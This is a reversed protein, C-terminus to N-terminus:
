NRQNTFRLHYNIVLKPIYIIRNANISFTHQPPLNFQESVILENWMVKGMTLFFQEFCLVNINMSNELDNILKFAWM